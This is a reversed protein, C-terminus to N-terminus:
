KRVTGPKFDVSQFRQAIKSSLRREEDTEPVGLFKHWMFLQTQSATEIERDNPYRRVEM